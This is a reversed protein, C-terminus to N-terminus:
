VGSRLAENSAGSVFRGGAPPQYHVRGYNLALQPPNRACGMPGVLDDGQGCGCWIVLGTVITAHVQEADQASPGATSPSGTTM